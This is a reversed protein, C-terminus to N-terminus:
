HFIKFAREVRSSSSFPVLPDIARYSQLLSSISYINILEERAMGTDTSLGIRNYYRIYLASTPIILEERGYRYVGTSPETFIM